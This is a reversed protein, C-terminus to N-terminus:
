IIHAYCYVDQAESAELDPFVAYKGLIGERTFGCHELVRMSKQHKVHCLAYLRQVAVAAAIHMVASLAESAFGFGWADKALVFGTSARVTTEFALGTSGLIAGDARSTILLPGVPWKAWESACFSLFEETDQICTHKAWGLFRTVQPDGAIRQFVQAADSQAPPRLALRTTRFLSPDLMRDLSGISQCRAFGNRREGYVKRDSGVVFSINHAAGLCISDLGAYLVAGNIRASTANTLDMVLQGMAAVTTPWVAGRGGCSGKSRRAAPLMAM